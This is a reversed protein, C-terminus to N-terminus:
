QKVFKQTVGNETQIFYIGANWNRIDLEHKKYSETKIVIEGLINFVTIESPKTLTIYIFDHSPNPYVAMKDIDEQDVSLIIQSIKRIKKSNSETVYLNDSNDKAIFYPGDFSSSLADGDNSAATGDGIISIDDSSSEEWRLIRNSYLGPMYIRDDSLRVADFITGEFSNVNNVITGTEKDIIYSAFCLASTVFLHGNSLLELGTGRETPCNMWPSTSNILSINGGGITGGGPLVKYINQTTYEIFYLTDNDFVMGAPQVAGTVYDVPAGGGNPIKVIKGLDFLAVYLENNPGLEIDLPDGPLNAFVSLTNGNSIDIKTIISSPSREAILIDGDNLVAIGSPVGNTQGLTTVNQAIGGLFLSSFSILLLTKKM